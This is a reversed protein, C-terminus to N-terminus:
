IFKDPNGRAVQDVVDFGFQSATSLISLEDVRRQVHCLILAPECDERIGGNYSILEKATALLPSNAQPVYTVDTGIIIEFGGGNLEKIAEIHDKNGWELRRTILKDFFPSKLNAEVNQTLLDLANADGDTAVVLDASRVAVM